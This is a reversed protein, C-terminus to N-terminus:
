VGTETQHRIDDALPHLTDAPLVGVLSYGMGGSAWSWGEVNGQAHPAMPKNQDALMPRTLMVLRTGRDDDYMLMLGAGHSTAIMRGGMLRYGSKSLDPLVPKRGMRETAWDVLEVMKDARLEVPRTRDSAYTAFSDAAEDALAVMGESSQRYMGHLMWGGSGGAILLFVAAAAMRWFPLRSKKRMDVLHSLNLRSPVPEEAVPNLVARLDLRQRGYSDIRAAIEPHTELYVAVEVERVEDLAGDVFGHLDDETIPKVSM